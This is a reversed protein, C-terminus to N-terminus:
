FLGGLIDAIGSMEDVAESLTIGEISLEGISWLSMASFAWMAIGYAVLMVVVMIWMNKGKETLDAGGIDRAENACNLFWVVWLFAVALIQPLMGLFGLVTGALLIISPFITNVSEIVILKKFDVAQKGVKSMIFIVLTSILIGVAAMVIGAILMQFIPYTIEVDDMLGQAMDGSMSIIGGLMKWLYLFIAVANIGAFIGALPLGKADEAVKAATAKPAKLYSLFVEKVKNLLEKGASPAAAPAATAVPASAEPAPAAAPAAVEAQAQPCSCVQGEELKTGCHKCFKAM